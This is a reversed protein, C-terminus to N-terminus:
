NIVGLPSCSANLKWSRQYLNNAPGAILYVRTKDIIFHPVGLNASATKDDQSPGPKAAYSGGLPPPKKQALDSCNSPPVLGATYPLPDSGGTGPTFPHSHWAVLLTGPLNNLDPAFYFRCPEDNAKIPLLFDQMSSDPLLMRAGGRERRNWPNGTPPSSDLAMKLARRVGEDNILSDVPQQEPILCDVVSVHIKLHVAVGEVHASVHVTYSNTAVVDYHPYGTDSSFGFPVIGLNLSGGADPKMWVSDLTVVPFHGPAPPLLVDPYKIYFNNEVPPANWGIRTADAQLSLTVGNGGVATVTAPGGAFTFQPRPPEEPGTMESPQSDICGSTALLAFFWWVDPKSRLESAALNM